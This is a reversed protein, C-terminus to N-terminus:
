GHTQNSQTVHKLMHRWTAYLGGDHMVVGVMDCVSGVTTTVVIGLAGEDLSPNEYPDCGSAYTFPGLEHRAILCRDSQVLDGVDFKEIM